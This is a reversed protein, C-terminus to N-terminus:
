KIISFLRQWWSPSREEREKMPVFEPCQYYLGIENYRTRWRLQKRFVASSSAFERWAEDIGGTWKEVFDPEAALLYVPLDDSLLCWAQDPSFILTQSNKLAYFFKWLIMADLELSYVQAPEGRDFSIASLAKAGRAKAEDCLNQARNTTFVFTEPGVLWGRKQLAEM